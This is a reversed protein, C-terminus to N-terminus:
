RRSGGARREVEVGVWDCEVPMPAEPKRVRVKVALAGEFGLLREAIRVALTEILDYERATAEEVVARAATAYDVTKELDDSAAATSFDTEIEADIRFVQGSEKEEPLVGHRAFVELGIILVRDAM